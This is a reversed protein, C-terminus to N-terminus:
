NESVKVSNAIELGVLRDFRERIDRYYVFLYYDNETEFHNGDIEVLDTNQDSRHRTAYSYNYYGQKLLLDIEYSQNAPNYTCKNEPGIKWTTLGGFLYVDTDPISDTTSLM